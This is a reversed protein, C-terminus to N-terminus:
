GGVTAAEAACAAPLREVAAALATPSGSEAQAEVSIGSARLCVDKEVVSEDCAVTVPVGEVSALADRVRVRASGGERCVLHVRYSGPVM